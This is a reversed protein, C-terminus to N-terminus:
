DCSPELARNVVVKLRTSESPKGALVDAETFVAMLIERATGAYRGHDYVVYITGDPAQAGDPYSVPHREDLMLGGQWTKGDDTSIYATLQERGTRENLPGHKVLLINGSTLKRFFFRAVPHRFPSQEVHSWTLGGDDSFSEGMGYRTRVLMWLTGDKREVTMPEHAGRRAVSDGMNAWGRVAFTKGQDTSVLAVPSNHIEGDSYNAVTFLWDGNSLVTPKNLMTGEFLRRPESWAPDQDEPDETMMAWVGRHVWPSYAQCWFFWLRDLPDIWLCAGAIRVPDDPMDVVVKLDSWTRGNDGSTILMVYNSPGGEGGGGSGRSVWLRGNSAREIGPIGQFVFHTGSYETEDPNFFVRPTRLAMERESLQHQASLRLSLVPALLFVTLVFIGNM